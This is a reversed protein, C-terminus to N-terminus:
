RSEDRVRSHMLPHLFPSSQRHADQGRRCMQLAEALREQLRKSGHLGRIDKLVISCIGVAIWHRSSSIAGSDRVDVVDSHTGKACDHIVFNEQSSDQRAHLVAVQLAKLRLLTIEKTSACVKQPMNQALM